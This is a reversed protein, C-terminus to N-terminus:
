IQVVCLLVYSVEDLRKRPERRGTIRVVAHGEHEGFHLKTGEGLTVLDIGVTTINEGLCGPALQFSPYKSSPKKLDHFLESAVLSVQRLNASSSASSCHADGQVGLSTLLYIYATPTKAFSHTPSVSVSLVSM